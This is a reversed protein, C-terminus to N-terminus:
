KTPRVLRTLTRIACRRTRYKWQSRFADLENHSTRSRAHAPVALFLTGGYRSPNFSVVPSLSKRFNSAGKTRLRRFSQEDHGFAVKRRLECREEGEYTSEDGALENNPYSDTVLQIEPQLQLQLVHGKRGVGYRIKRQGERLHDEPTPKRRRSAETLVLCLCSVVGLAVAIPAAYPVAFDPM